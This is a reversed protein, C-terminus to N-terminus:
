IIQCINAYISDIQINFYHNCHFLIIIHAINLNSKKFKMNINFLLIIFQSQHSFFYITDCKYVSFLVAGRSLLLKKYSNNYYLMQWQGIIHGKTISFQGDFIKVM